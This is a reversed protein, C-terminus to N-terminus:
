RETIIIIDGRPNTLLKKASQQFEWQHQPCIRTVEYRGQMEKPTAVATECHGLDIGLINM